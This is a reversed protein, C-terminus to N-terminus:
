GSSPLVVASGTTCPLQMLRGARLPNADLWPVPTVARWSFGGPATGLLKPWKEHPLSRWTEAHKFLFSNHKSDRLHSISAMECWVCHYMRSSNKLHERCSNIEVGYNCNIEFVSSPNPKFVKGSWSIVPLHGLLLPFEPIEIWKKLSCVFHSSVKLLCFLTVRNCSLQQWHSM